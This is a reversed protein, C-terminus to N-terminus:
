KDFVYVAGSDTITNDSQSGGIGTAASDEQDAGVALTDGDSSLSVSDGFYDGAGSNSAKIYSQQSWTSGNRTFVYVAGSNGVGNNSQDGGIGIAISDELPAGVALTDGDSSLSVSNGFADGLDTNSAKIYAQQTWISGSRTFVYVAGSGSKSNDSQTGGIGTAASDEGFAGVALTNGDLSLSVSNGFFDNAETNSAKIYAQQSWVSGSRTFVYVAGSESASNDSQSGDIGTANSDEYYSSVGLTNGDSSLSVSWGFYDGAGTNSAKIYAQQSWVSGSRTFVYVAGSSSAGNNSQTGGIGTAISDEGLAGVSLTNGDSSLSVSYGFYDNTETNSAKVYAQQSWVSGSRTFVYAAGSASASNDSQAGGIGTAFSDEFYAGVALTNGDSSLCVSRGFYDNAETNSAKIYAQQSWVSGSRTFVYVAGSATANNNSQDGGIGTATSDELYASVALTNGDSSLSVLRGFSDYSNTNSAKIYAQQATFESPDIVTTEGTMSFCKWGSDLRICLSQRSEDYVLTGNSVASSSNYKNVVDEVSTVTPLVLGGNKATGSNVELIGTPTTTNIGVQAMTCICIFPLLLNLIRKM